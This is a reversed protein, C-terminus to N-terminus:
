DATTVIRFFYAAVEIPPSQRFPSRLWCAATMQVGRFRKCGEPELGGRKQRVYLSDHIAISM